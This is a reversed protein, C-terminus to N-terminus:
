LADKELIITGDEYQLVVRDPYLGGYGNQSAVNAISGFGDIKEAAIPDVDHTFTIVLWDYDGDRMYQVDTVPGAWNIYPDAKLGDYYTQSAAEDEVGGTPIEVAESFRYNEDWEYYLEMDWTYEPFVTDTQAQWAGLDEITYSQMFLDGESDSTIVVFLEAYELTENSNNQITITVKETGDPMREVQEMTVSIKETLEDLDATEDPKEEAPKDVDQPAEGGDPITQEEGGDDKMTWKLPTYGEPADMTISYETLDGGGDFRFELSQNDMKYEITTNYYNYAENGSYADAVDDQSAGVYVGRATQTTGSVLIRYVQSLEALEAESGKSRDPVVYVVTADQYDMYVTSGRISEGTPEGLAQEAEARSMGPRVPEGDVLIEFDDPGLPGGGTSNGCGALGLALTAALAAAAARRKRERM